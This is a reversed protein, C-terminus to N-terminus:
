GFDYKTGPIDNDNDNNLHQLSPTTSFNHQQSKKRQNKSKSKSNSSALNGAQILANALEEFSMDDESQDEDDESNLNEVETQQKYQSTDIDAIKQFRLVRWSTGCKPSVCGFIFLVRHQHHSVPAYVQAVLSLNNACTACRLM